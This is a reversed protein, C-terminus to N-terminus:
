AMLSQPEQPKSILGVQTAVGLWTKVDELSIDIRPAPPGSHEVVDQPLKLWKAETAHMLQNDKAMM